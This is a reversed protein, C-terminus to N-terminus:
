ILTPGMPASTLCCIPIVRHPGDRRVRIQDGRLDLFTIGHLSQVQSWDLLAIEDLRMWTLALLSLLLRKQHAIGQEFIAPLEKPKFSLFPLSEEGYDSLKLNVLPNSKIHGEQECWTLFATM